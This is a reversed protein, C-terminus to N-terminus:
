AGAAIVVTGVRIRPTMRVRPFAESGPMSAAAIVTYAGDPLPRSRLSWAGEENAEAHGLVIREATADGRREAAVIVRAGPWSKGEFRPMAVDSRTDRREPIHDRAPHVALLSGDLEDMRATLLEPLIFGVGQDLHPLVHERYWNVVSYYGSHAIGIGTTDTYRAEGAVPVQGWLNFWSQEPTPAFAYYTHQYFVEAEDVIEPVLAPPDDARGQYDNILYRALSGMFSDKVSYQKFRPGGSAAHPDLMTQKIYGSDLGRPLERELAKLALGNIVTGQSHGIIHLDVPGGSEVAAVADKIQKALRLGQRWVAGPRHSESVWNFPLVEDYGERALRRSMHHQWSPIRDGPTVQLGGHTIVALSAKRLSAVNNSEDAEALTGDPDAVALLYPFGPCIALAEPAEITATRVRLAATDTSENSLPAIDVTSVRIDDPSWNPDSSRYLGVAVHQQAVPSAAAAERQYEIVLREADVARVGLIVLDAEAGALLQRSELSELGSLDVRRRSQRWHWLRDVM